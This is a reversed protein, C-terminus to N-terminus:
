KANYKGGIKGIGRKQPIINNFSPEEHFTWKGNDIIPYQEGGDKESGAQRNQGMQVISAQGRIGPYIGQEIKIVRKFANFIRFIIGYDDPRAIGLIKLMEAPKVIESDGPSIRRFKVFNDLAQRLVNVDIVDDRDSVPKIHIFWRSFIHNIFPLPFRREELAHQRMKVVIIRIYRILRIVGHKILLARVPLYFVQRNALEMICPYKLLYSFTM